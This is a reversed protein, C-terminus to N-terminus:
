PCDPACSLPERDDSYKFRDNGSRKHQRAKESKQGQEGDGGTYAGLGNRSSSYFQQRHEETYFGHGEKAVAFWEYPKKAKDLARRLAKAQDFPARPDAEGHSFSSANRAM